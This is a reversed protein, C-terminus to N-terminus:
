EYRLATLPDVKTARRAPFYCAALGVATLLLSVAVLTLPDASEIGWIRNQLIKALAISTPVGIGVGIVLWRLGSMMVMRHVDTAEAGLAMRIGIEQTRRSVAYSLVSYVGVSVLVLGLSAFAVLMTLVFRPETFETDLLDATPGNSLGGGGMALETDIGHIAKRVSTMMVAPQPVSRVLIWNYAFGTVTYPVYVQPEVPSSRGSDRIDQAVGVIEFALPRVSTTQAGLDGGLGLLSSTLKIQLGLPNEDAFYKSAFTRNVVAVRGRLLVDQESIDRGKLLPIELTEHFRDSLLHVRATWAEAGAKGPIDLKAVVPFWKPPPTCIAASVVGPVARAQRLAETFYQNRQEPTKYRGEPLGFAVSLLQHPNYGLEIHRLALFSRILLGAGTLLLLSLAVESVVLLNRLRHHGSSEGVGRGSAKLSEQLDKGVALLAPAPGSLLTSLLAVGLTFMLVSANIHIVAESPIMEPPVVAVLGDLGNWALLCGLGGGGLAVLLSEIMFQRVLRMRGAGLAARIAMEKQRGAVRALLLNAVNVCAILLLLGVAGFFIYYTQYTQARSDEAWSDVGFNVGPPHEKPYVAAFAKSLRAVDASAQDFTVGPKLHGIVFFRGGNDLGQARSLTAPHWIQAGGWTFRSPMVGIITTPRHGLVVSRGIVGPDGAFKSRWYKYSLLAVASAGPESDMPTISRGLLPPVGLVRFTNGTVELSYIIEPADTGVVIVDDAALVGTGGIVEDFVQNKERYDQFEAASVWAWQVSQGQKPDHSVLVALRHSDRYPFPNLVAGYVLSFVATTGGIGLALTLVAVTTFGPNKRLMRLAFRLDNLM